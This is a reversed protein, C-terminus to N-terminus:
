ATPSCPSRDWEPNKSVLARLTRAKESFRQVEQARERAKKYSASTMIGEVAATLDDLGYAVDAVLPVETNMVNGMSWSDNRMDIFKAERAVIPQPSNHHLKNGVSIVVDPNKPFRALHARQPRVAWGSADRSCADAAGADRADRSCGLKVAKAVAKATSEDGAILRCKAEVLLKAAREVRRTLRVRM